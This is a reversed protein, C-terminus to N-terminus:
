PTNLATGCYGCFRAGPLNAQQCASCVVPAPLPQGCQPCFRTGLAAQAGCATCAVVAQTQRAQALGARVSQWSLGFARMLLWGGVGTLALPLAGLVFLKVPEWWYWFLVLGVLGLVAGLVLEAEKGRAM